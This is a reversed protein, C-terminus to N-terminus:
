LKLKYEKSIMNLIEKELEELSVHEVCEKEYVVLVDDGVCIKGDNDRIIISGMRKNRFLVASKELTIFNCNMSIRGVFTSDEIYDDLLIYDDKLELFYEYSEVFCNGNYILYVDMNEELQIIFDPGCMMTNKIVYIKYDCKSLTVGNIVKISTKYGIKSYNQLLTNLDNLREASINGNNIEKNVLTVVEAYKKFEDLVKKNFELIINDVNAFNDIEAKLITKEKLAEIIDKMNSYYAFYEYNRVENLLRKIFHNKKGYKNCLKMIDEYFSKIPKDYNINIGIMDVDSVFYSNFLEEKIYRNIEKIDNIFKNYFIDIETKSYCFWTIITRYKVLSMLSFDLNLLNNSVEDIDKLYSEMKRLVKIKYEENMRDTHDYQSKSNGNIHKDTLIEYAENIKKVEEEAKKQEEESKGINMDPHYKKQLKIYSSRLEKETFGDKLKLTELCEYYSLAM